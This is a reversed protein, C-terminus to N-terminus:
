PASPSESVPASFRLKFYLGDGLTGAPDAGLRNAVALSKVNTNAIAFTAVEHPSNRALHDLLLRTARPAYGRGRHSALTFYGINVEGDELWSRRTDYDVWGVVEGHVEVCAAPPPTTEEAALWLYFESDRGETLVALDDWSPPRITVVGDSVLLVSPEVPSMLQWRDPDARQQPRACSRPLPVRIEEPLAVLFRRHRTPLSRQYSM